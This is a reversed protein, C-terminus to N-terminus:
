LVYATTTFDLSVLGVASSFTTAVIFFFLGEYCNNLPDINQM